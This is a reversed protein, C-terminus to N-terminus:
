PRSAFESGALHFRLPLEAAKTIGIRRGAVVPGCRRVFAAARPNRAIFLPSQKSCLDVGDLGRTIDLAACLKAPGNTLERRRGVPRRALMWPENFEPALARVLVAEGVGARRCVANVCFHMGYILYVYGHGPEGFMSRNRASPGGFAHCAPDAQLYAEVEVIPGGVPGQPTNRILWHGLLRPAVREASPAFFRRPLPVLRPM